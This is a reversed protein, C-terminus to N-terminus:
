RSSGPRVLAALPDPLISEAIGRPSRMNWLKIRGCLPSPTIVGAWSAAISMPRGLAAMASAWFAAMRMSRQLSRPRARLM